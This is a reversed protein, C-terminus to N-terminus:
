HKKLKKKASWHGYGAKAKARVQCHYATGRKLGRLHLTTHKGKARVTPTHRAHCRAQYGTLRSGRPRARHFSVTARHASRRNTRLATPKTPTIVGRSIRLKHPSFTMGDIAVETSAAGPTVTVTGTGASASVSSPVLTSPDDIGMAELYANPIALHFFGEFPTADDPAALFHSSALDIIMAFSPDIQPPLGTAEINTAMTMGNFIDWQSSDSWFEYDSAEGLFNVFNKDSHYPCSWPWSSQDCQGNDGMVVPNGKYNIDWTGDGNDIRTVTLGSAYADVERPNFNVMITISWNHSEEGPSLDLDFFMGHGGGSDVESATITYSSSFLESASDRTM